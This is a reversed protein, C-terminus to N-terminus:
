TSNVDSTSWTLRVESLHDHPSTLLKGALPVHFSGESAEAMLHQSFVDHTSKEPSSFTLAPPTRAGIHPRIWMSVCREGEGGQIQWPCWMGNQGATGGSHRCFTNRLLRFILPMWRSDTKQSGWMGARNATLLSFSFAENVPSSLSRSHFVCDQGWKKEGESKQM